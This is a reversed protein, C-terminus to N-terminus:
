FTLILLYFVLLILIVLIVLILIVLIVLILIVLITWYWYWWYRGIDIGGIDELILIVLIKWRPKKWKWNQSIIKIFEKTLPVTYVNFKTDILYFYFIPEIFAAIALLVLDRRLIYDFGLFTVQGVSDKNQVYKWFVPNNRNSHAWKKLDFLLWLKVLVCKKFFVLSRTCTSIHMVM